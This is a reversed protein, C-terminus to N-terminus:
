SCVRALGFPCRLTPAARSPTRRGRQVCFSLGGAWSGIPQRRSLTMIPRLGLSSSPDGQEWAQRQVIAAAIVGPGGHCSLVPGAEGILMQDEPFDLEEALTRVMRRTEDGGGQTCIGCLLEAPARQRVEQQIKTIAKERSRTAGFPSLEGDVFQVVPKVSLVRVIRELMTMIRDARGGRRLFEITDLMLFFHTRERLSELLAVIEKVSHGEAAAQAARIAMYSQSQSLSHSDFVTVQGPFGQAATGASNHTGSHKSTVTVCVVQEGQEAHAKEFQGVSPQSTGPYPPAARARTWFEDHSLDCTLHEETGFRVVLPAVHIDYKSRLEDHMDSASDTIIAIKTM